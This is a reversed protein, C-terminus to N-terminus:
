GNLLNELWDIFRPMLSRPAVKTDKHPLAWEEFLMQMLQPDMKHALLVKADHTALVHGAKRLSPTGCIPCHTIPCGNLDDTRQVIFGQGCDDCRLNPQEPM